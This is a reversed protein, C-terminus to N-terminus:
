SPDDRVLLFAQLCIRIVLWWLLRAQDSCCERVGVFGHGLRNRFDFGLKEILLCRLEFCLEEGFIEVTEEMGFLPGLVKVPQTGDSHLNSVDVGHSELVFRISNELQLGLLHSSVIFDGHFGAHIGKLFIIEHEPPVFPNNKVLFELDSLSPHHDNYIQLRAPEIFATARFALTFKRAYKMMEGEVWLEVDVGDGPHPSGPSSVIERGKEDLHSSPFIGALSFEKDLKIVETRIKELDVLNTGFALLKIAQFIDPQSVWESVLKVQDDIDFPISFAKMEEVSKAQFKVLKKRLESIRTPDGSQQRLCEIAQKLSDAAAFYSPNEQEVFSSANSALAEGAKLRLLRAAEYEKLSIQFLAALEFAKQAKKYDDDGLCEDGFDETTIALSAQDGASFQRALSLLRLYQYSETRKPHADNILGLCDDVAGMFTESNRGPKVALELSRRLCDEAEIPHDKRFQDKAHELYNKAAIELMTHDKRCVWLLDQLRAAISCTKTKGALIKIASLDHDSLDEPIISRQDGYIMLPGYPQGPVGVKLNLGMLNGVFRFVHNEGNTQENGIHAFFAEQLDFFRGSETLAAVRDLDAQSAEELTGRFLNQSM